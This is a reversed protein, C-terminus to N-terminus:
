KREDGTIEMLGTMPVFKTKVKTGTKIEQIGEYIIRDNVDLGSAVVYLHPIRLMPVFSKMSVKNEQDVVYVYIRDQVEFASKQPILMAKHIDHRIRVKGSSGHKLIKGPNSFRARFAINGTNKDFEGEVTEIMGSYPHVQNNALILKVESNVDKEKLASAYELYEKESVNFYAFVETNDSLTTLLDGENILSGSKNPIRDIIGAFPARIRTFALRLNASAEHSRAEEIKANLAELKSRAIDLETRSIVNKEVLRETNQVNLESVKADAIASKLMAKAKLLDEHYESSSLTFLLQDKVVADGEDVHIKEIFGKVRARIEV